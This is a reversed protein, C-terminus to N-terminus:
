LLIHVVISFFLVFGLRLHVRRRKGTARRRRMWGSIVQAFLALLALLGSVMKTHQWNFAYETFILSVHITILLLAMLGITMHYPMIKRAIKAIKIKRERKKERRIESFLSHMNWNLLIALLGVIGFIIPLSLFTPSDKIGQWIALILVLINLYFWKNM